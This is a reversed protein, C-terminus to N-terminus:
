ESICENRAVGRLCLMIGSLKGDESECQFVVITTRKTDASTGASSRRDIDTFCTEWGSRM